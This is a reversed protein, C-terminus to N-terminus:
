RSSRSRKKKKRRKREGREEGRQKREEASKEGGETGDRRREMKSRWAHGEDKNCRDEGAAKEIFVARRRQFFFLIPRIRAVCSAVSGDAPM